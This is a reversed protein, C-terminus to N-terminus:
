SAELAGYDFSLKKYQNPVYNNMHEMAEVYNTRDSIMLITNLSIEALNQDEKTNSMIRDGIPNVCINAVVIGYFTAILAVAMRLGTEKPDAGESLGKMLHVLGLVTGALGFAPPYKSLSRIWQGVTVSDDTYKEIRDMLIDRIKDTSFGLRLLEFGDVLIKQDIRKAKGNPVNGQMLYLSNQICDERLGHNGSVGRLIISLSHKIKLSPLTMISVALTGCVVMAFAILDWFQTISQDLHDLSVYFGATIIIFGILIKM